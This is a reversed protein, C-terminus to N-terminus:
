HATDFSRLVSELLFRTHDDLPSEPPDSHSINLLYLKKSAVFAASFIRKIGGRTSDLVYEFEYFPIGDENSREGVKVIEAARTSEKKREAQILKEAVFEPSGFDRLSSLRVPNVVVGINNSGKGKEEFLATAGAKEVKTWSEPVLLEFGEARDAYPKLDEPSPQAAAPILTPIPSLSILILTRRRWINPIIPPNSSRRRDPRRVGAIAPPACCRRLLLHTTM